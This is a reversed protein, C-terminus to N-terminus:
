FDDLDDLDVLKEEVVQSKTTLKDPIEDEASDTLEPDKPQENDSRKTLTEDRKPAMVGSRLKPGPRPGLEIDKRSTRVAELLDM